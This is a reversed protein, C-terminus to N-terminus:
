TKQGLLVEVHDLVIRSIERKTLTGTEAVVGSAGIIVVRNVDSDFGTEKRSVDNAVVLDLGKHERKQQAHEILRETEAAFGVLVKKERGPLRSLARLIDDTPVLDIQRLGSSKKIKRRATRAPRFDAVAAAMILVDSRPFFETLARGMEEATEVSTREVGPPPELATPGSVLIVKAGRRAAEAALEYGMKGSSRNSLFRVPDLPERTPGASVLVTRGALSTRRELLEFSRAVIADLSALRGWGEAGCALSGKEPLVFEVGAARLKQINAQTQPHLFMAENMAPAILVPRRVALYFTSLFDDAIGAAFKAIINATAPAVLLLSIEDALAVHAVREASWEGFLDVIAKRGSLASFVQPSILRAANPTMIVQVQIGKKQFARVIDCAKYLSISSSVGLAITTM